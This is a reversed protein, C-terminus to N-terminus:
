RTSDRLKRRRESMCKEIEPWESYDGQLMNTCYKRLLDTRKKIEVKIDHIYKENGVLAIEYHLTPDLCESLLYVEIGSPIINQRLLQNAGDGIPEIGITLADGEILILVRTTSNEVTFKWDNIKKIVCGYEIELFRCYEDVLNKFENPSVYKPM